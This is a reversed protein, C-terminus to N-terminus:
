GFNDLPRRGETTSWSPLESETSLPFVDTKQQLQLRPQATGIRRSREPSKFQETRKLLISKVEDYPTWIQMGSDDKRALINRAANVDADLM